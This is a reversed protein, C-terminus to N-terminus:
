QTSASPDSRRRIQLACVIAFLVLNLTAVAALTSRGAVLAFVAHGLWLAAFMWVVARRWREQFLFKTRPQELNYVAIPTLACIGVLKRLAEPVSGPAAPILGLEAGLGLVAEALLFFQVLLSIRPTSRSKVQSSPNM